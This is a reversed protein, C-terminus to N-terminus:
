ALIEAVREPAILGVQVLVSLGYIVDADDLDIQEALELDKQMTRLGAVVEATLLPNLGAVAADLTIREALSFRRRFALKTLIRASPPAYDAAREAFECDPYAAQAQELSDVVITNVYEGNRTVVVDM